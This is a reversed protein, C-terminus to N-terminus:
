CILEQLDQINKTAKTQKAESTFLYTEKLGAKYGAEIDRESDGVLVSNELDINLDKAAKLLMGAKPKRCECDGSIDPHHPCHYVQDITIGREDFSNIMWFSLNAFDTESYYGRAIGSQNTVVVIYYGKAKYYQCLDFIGEIFEFDEKKHLYNKEINIVGDRDLFLAPKKHILLSEDKHSLSSSLM